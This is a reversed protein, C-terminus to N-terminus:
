NTPAAEILPAQHVTPSDSERKTTAVHTARGAFCMVRYSSDSQYSCSYSYTAEDKHERIKGINVAARSLPLAQYGIDCSM